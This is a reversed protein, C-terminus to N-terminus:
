KQMRQMGFHWLHLLQLVHPWLSPPIVVRFGFLLCDHATSLSIALKRFVEMSGDQMDENSAYRPPWGERTYHMINAIVADKASEKALTGPDTPNLQLSVAKITCVADM